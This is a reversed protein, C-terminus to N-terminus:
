CVMGLQLKRGQPVTPSLFAHGQASMKSFRFAGVPVFYYKKGSSEPLEATTKEWWPSNMMEDMLLKQQAFHWMMLSNHHSSIDNGLFVHQAGSWRNYVCAQTPVCSIRSPPLWWQPLMAYSMTTSLHRKIFARHFDMPCGSPSPCGEAPLHTLLSYSFLLFKWKSGKWLVM